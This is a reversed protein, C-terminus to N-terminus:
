LKSIITFRRQNQIDIEIASCRKEVRVDYAIGFEKKRM